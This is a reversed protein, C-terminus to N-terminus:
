RGAFWYGPAMQYAAPQIGPNMPFGGFNASM